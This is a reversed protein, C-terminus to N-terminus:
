YRPILNIPSFLLALQFSKNQRLMHHFRLMKLPAIILVVAAFGNEPVNLDPPNLSHFGLQVDSGFNNMLPRSRAPVVLKETSLTSAGAGTGSGLVISSRPEPNIPKNPNLFFNLFYISPIKPLSL